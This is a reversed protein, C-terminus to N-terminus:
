RRFHNAIEARNYRKPCSYARRQEPVAHWGTLFDDNVTKVASVPCFNGTIVIKVSIWDNALGIEGM